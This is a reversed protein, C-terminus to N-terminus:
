IDDINVERDSDSSEEKAKPKEQAPQQAQQAAGEDDSHEFEFGDDMGSDVIRTDNTKDEGIEGLSIGHMTELKMFLKLNVGAEKKLKSLQEPAYKAVIDGRKVSKTSVELEPSAFSRLSILVVDGPEIYVRGKMKGSIHCIRIINDNSFCLVNRNGLLRIARALMQGEQMDIYVPTTQEEKKKKKYGKGGKFNPPM